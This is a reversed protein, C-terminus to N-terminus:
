IDDVDGVDDAVLPSAALVYDRVVLLLLVGDDAFDGVQDRVVATVRVAEDVLNVRVVDDLATAPVSADGSAGEGRAAFEVEVTSEWLRLSSVFSAFCARMSRCALAAVATGTPSLPSLAGCCVGVRWAAPSWGRGSRCRGPSASLLAALPPIRIARGCGSCILCAIWSAAVDLVNQFSCNADCCRRTRM